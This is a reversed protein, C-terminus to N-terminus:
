GATKMSRANIFKDPLWRHNTIDNLLINAAHMGPMFCLLSVTERQCRRACPKVVQYVATGALVKNIM